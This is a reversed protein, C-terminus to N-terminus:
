PKYNQMYSQIRVDVNERINMYFLNIDGIHFNKATFFMKGFVDPKCSWLINDNIKADVVHTRVMLKVTPGGLPKNFGKM